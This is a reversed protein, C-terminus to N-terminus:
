SNQVRTLLIYFRSKNKFMTVFLIYYFRNKGQGCNECVYPIIVPNSVKCWLLYFIFCTLNKLMDFLLIYYFRNKGQGCNECVYPIVPNSVKCWLLYFIFCTRLCLLSCYAIFGTRVKAVIKVFMPYLLILFKVNGPTWMSETTSRTWGARVASHVVWCPRRTDYISISLYLNEWSEDYFTCGLLALLLSLYVSLYRLM